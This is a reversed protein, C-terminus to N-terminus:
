PLRSLLTTFREKEQTTTNSREKAGHSWSHYQNRAQDLTVKSADETTIEIPFYGTSIVIM